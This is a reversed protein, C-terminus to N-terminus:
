LYCRRQAPRLSSPPDYACHLAQCRTAALVGPSEIAAAAGGSTAALHHPLEDGLGLCGPPARGRQVAAAPAAAGSSTAEHERPSTPPSAESKIAAEAEVPAGQERCLPQQKGRLLTAWGTSSLAYAM